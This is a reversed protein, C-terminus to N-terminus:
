KQMQAFTHEGIMGDQPIVIADQLDVKEFSGCATCLVTLIVALMLCICKKM